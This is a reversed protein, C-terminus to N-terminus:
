RVNKLPKLGAFSPKEELFISYKGEVARVEDNPWYDEVKHLM